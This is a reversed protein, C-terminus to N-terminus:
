DEIMDKETKSGKTILYIRSRSFSRILVFIMNSIINALFMLVEIAFWFLLMKKDHSASTTQTSTDSSSEETSEIPPTNLRRSGESAYPEAMRDYAMADEAEGEEVQMDPLLQFCM